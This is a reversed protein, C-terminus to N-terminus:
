CLFQWNLPLSTCNVNPLRMSSFYFVLREEPADTPMEALIQVWLFKGSYPINDRICVCDRTSLSATLRWYFCVYCPWGFICAHQRWYHRLITKSFAYSWAHMRCQSMMCFVTTCITSCVRTLWADHHVHATASSLQFHLVTHRADTNHTQTTSIISAWDGTTAEKWLCNFFFCLFAPSTNSIICCIRAKMLNADRTRILAVYLVTIAYHEFHWTEKKRSEGRFCIWFLHM